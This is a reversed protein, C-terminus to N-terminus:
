AQGVALAMLTISTASSVDFYVSSGNTGSGYHTNRFPGIIREGGAPVAVIRDGVTQGDVTGPTIFTVNIPAGAGNKVHLVVNQSSNPFEHNNVADAAVFAPTLGTRSTTLVTLATRPM